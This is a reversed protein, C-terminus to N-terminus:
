AQNPIQHFFNNENKIKTHGTMQWYRNLFRVLVSSYLHLRVNQGKKLSEDHIRTLHLSPLHTPVRSLGWWAGHEGLERCTKHGDNGPASLILRAFPLGPLHVSSRALPGRGRRLEQTMWLYSPNAAVSKWKCCLCLFLRSVPFLLSSYVKASGAGKPTAALRVASSPSSFSACLWLTPGSSKRLTAVPVGPPPACLQRWIKMKM